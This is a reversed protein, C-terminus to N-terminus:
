KVIIIKALIERNESEAFQKYLNDVTMAELKDGVQLDSAKVLEGNKLIMTKEDTKLEAYTNNLDIPTFTKDKSTYVKTNVIEIKDGDISAVEGKVGERAYEDMILFKAYDGDAFITYVKDKRTDKGYTLFEDLSIFGDEFVKTNEDIRFKREIPSYKYQFDKLRAFSKVTMQTRKEIDKIRARCIFIDPEGVKDIVNFIVGDRNGMVVQINDNNVISDMSVLYGDKIAIANKNFGVQQRSNGLKIEGNQKRGVVDEGLVVGRGEDFYLTDLKEEGYYDKTVSYVTLDSGILNEKLFDLSVRKGGYIIKPVDGMIDYVQNGVYDKFGIKSLKSSQLLSITNQVDNYLGMKSMYVNKVKTGRTFVEVKKVINKLRGKSIVADNITVDVYQGVKLDFASSIRGDKKVLASKPVDLSLLSGDDLVLKAGEGDIAVSKITGTKRSVFAKASISTVKDGDIRLHVIDGIEVDEINADTKDYKNEDFIEDIHGIDNESVFYDLREVVVNDALFHKTQEQANADTITIYKFKPNVDVVTGSIESYLPEAGTYEIRVVMDNELILKIKNTYPMDEKKIERFGVVVIGQEKDYISERMQYSHRTGDDPMINIIGKDLDLGGQLVGVVERPEDKATVNVYLVEQSLDNVVYRVKDGDELASLGTIVGNKLVVCDRNILVGDEGVFIDKVLEDTKGENNRVKIVKKANQEFSGVEDDIRTGGVLGSKQKLGLTKYLIDEMNVLVKAMESRKIGRKPRFYKGRGVMIKKRMLTEIYPLSTVEANEFDAVNYINRFEPNPALMGAQVSEVAKSAWVAVEERTAPDTKVFAQEGAFSNGADANAAEYDAQTILGMDAAVKLYGTSWSAKVGQEAVKEAEAQVEAEKGVLRLMLALVEQKSVESNPAFRMTEGYSYGKYIGLASLKSIEDKAWFTGAVDVFNANVINYDGNGTYTNSVKDYNVNENKVAFVSTASLIFVLLIATLKKM